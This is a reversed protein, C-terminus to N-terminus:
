WVDQQASPTRSAVKRSSWRTLFNERESNKPESM